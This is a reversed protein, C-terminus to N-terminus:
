RIVTVDGKVVEKVGGMKEVEMVYFYVGAQAMKNKWLGNWGESPDNPLFNNNEFVLEGWRDFLRLYTVKIIERGAFVSFMANDGGADPAIINPAFVSDDRRVTIRIDDTVTCGDSNTVTVQYNTTRVPIALMSSSDFPAFMGVPSWSFIGADPSTSEATLWISDGLVITQDDGLSVNFNTSRFLM